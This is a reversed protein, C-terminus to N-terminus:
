LVDEVGLNVLSLGVFEIIKSKRSGSTKVILDIALIKLPLSTLTKEKKATLQDKSMTTDLDSLTFHTKSRTM